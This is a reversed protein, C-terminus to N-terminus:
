NEKKPGEEVEKVPVSAQDKVRAELELMFTVEDLSFVLLFM